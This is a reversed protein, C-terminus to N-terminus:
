HKQQYGRGSPGVRGEGFQHPSSTATLVVHRGLMDPGDARRCQADVADTVTDHLALLTDLGTLAFVRRPLPQSCAVDLRAHDAVARRHALVLAGLGSADLFGVETLDCVLRTVGCDLATVLTESLQATTAMDVEGSVSVVTSDGSSWVALDFGGMADIAAIQQTMAM